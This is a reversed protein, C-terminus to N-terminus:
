SLKSDSELVYDAIVINVSQDPLDIKETLLLNRDTSRNSLVADDVDVGIIEKVESKLTRIARRFECPDDEFWEGRGAGLDLVVDTPKCQSRIRQYFEVTGDNSTYGGIYKSEPTFM